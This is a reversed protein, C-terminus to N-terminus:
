ILPLHRHVYMSRFETINPLLPLEARVLRTQLDGNAAVRDCGVFIIGIKDSKMTYSAMNDCQVYTDIGAAQMEYASM